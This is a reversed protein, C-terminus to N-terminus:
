LDTDTADRITQKNLTALLQQDSLIVKLKEGPELTQKGTYIKDDGTKVIAFGKKLINLPSVITMVSEYHGLEGRKNKLYQATFTGLNRVTNRLNNQENGIMTKPRSMLTTAAEVLARQKRYILGASQTTIKTYASSLQDAHQALQQQSRIIISQQHRSIKEEFARNHAIIWEAANTPTKLATHAMRDAISENRFHGIGTIVPVPFRAIARCLDYNDFILFDTQAGGGRTIVVADYKKGSAHIAILQQIIEGAFQDGQVPAPYEDVAFAYGFTNTGLTHRLDEAGASTRSAIVAIRQLVAPLPLQNNRTYFRTGVQWIIDPNQDLLRQLTERRRRELAGLTFNADVAVINLQLGFQAHFQVEVQLLVSINSTFRQGTVREFATIADSGAGWARAHMKALLSGSAPEKEVLECFHNHKEAKYTHSTVEAM